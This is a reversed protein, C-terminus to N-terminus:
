DRAYPRTIAELFHGDPDAFYVGRGGHHHNIQGPMTRAPDAWHDLGKDKIRSHIADFEPESLGRPAFLSLHFEEIFILKTM